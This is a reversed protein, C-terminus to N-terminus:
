LASDIESKVSTEILKTLKEFDQNRELVRQKSQEDSLQKSHKLFDELTLAM